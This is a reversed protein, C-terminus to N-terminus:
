KTKEDTAKEEDTAKDKPSEAQELLFFQIETLYNRPNGKFIMGPGKHYIERTPISAQYGHDHLYQVIKAYSRGLEGYPGKLLLSVCRGGPLERVSIGEASRNSRVPYCAEFSADNERYEQDYHLLFPKGCIQRGLSRGIRAFGHCCDAYKGKIAVAAIWQTQVDKEEVEFSALRMIWRAKREQTIFRDLSAVLARDKRIRGLIASKQREMAEILDADDAVQSLIERIEGLSFGLDRLVTIARASDLKAAAYYRYGTQEDVGSPVLLGQEHYFRLTKITLGTIKSFEGISFV